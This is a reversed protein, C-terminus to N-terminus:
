NRFTQTVMLGYRGGDLVGIGVRGFAPRLINARHGPSDMLGQHAMPLTRALALNEGAVRFTLMARRMRDYPDAGDPTVHSFYSRALMDQSHARSVATAEADAQLPRLGQTKREDNVLELMKAELDPRPTATTLTFPLRISERSEPQVTLKSLTREFAPNFIPGLRAELWEAPAALRNALESEGVSRTVRDDWPLAVLLMSVITANILGNATGPLTGLV